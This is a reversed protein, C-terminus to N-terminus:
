ALERVCQPMADARGTWSGRGWHFGAARLADLIDRSPKEAFTVIAYDGTVNVTVGNPAADAEARKAQERKIQEIRLRDRRINANLNSLEYSEHPKRGQGYEGRAKMCARLHTVDQGMIQAVKAWGADDDPAPSGGKRYAANRAKMREQEAEREAIRAELQEIADADDSFVARDLQAAIGAARSAHEKAMDQHEIAKFALAHSRAIAARHRGESHHGVKIPEGGPPLPVSEHAKWAADAKAERSQAWERRRELRREMRERRTM